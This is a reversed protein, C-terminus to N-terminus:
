NKRGKEKRERGRRKRKEEVGGEWRGHHRCSGEELLSMKAPCAAVGQIRHELDNIITVLGTTLALVTRSISNNSKSTVGRHSSDEPKVDM